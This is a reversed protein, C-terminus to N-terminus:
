GRPKLRPALEAALKDVEAQWGQRLARVLAPYGDEQLPETRQFSGSALTREGQVLRWRGSLLAQGDYRGQFATLSLWLHPVEGARPGEVLEVDPLGRSLQELLSRTLQRDLSEAWRAQSATVLQVDDQQFAIGPGMLYEPLEVREVVLLPGQGVKQAPPVDGPLTLAYYAPTPAGACAALWFCAWLPILRKM